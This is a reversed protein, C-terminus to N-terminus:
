PSTDLQCKHGESLPGRYYERELSLLEVVSANSRCVNVESMMFHQRQQHQEKSADDNSTETDDSYADSISLRRM